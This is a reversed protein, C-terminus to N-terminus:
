KNMIYNKILVYDSSTVKGDGNYDAYKKADESLSKTGMIHNKILVYDSSTVKGDSNVDGKVFTVTSTNNTTTNTNNTTTNTNTNNNNTQSNDNTTTNTTNNTSTPRPSVKTPMNEYVPIVFTYAYETAGISELIKRVREGQNQAYLVDQAYQHSYFSDAVVDFKELYMTDQGVTIYGKAIFDVGGILCKEITDWGKGKAWALANSIIASTTTGSANINFINYYYKTKGDETTKMKVTSGGKKGQEQIIKAAIYYPNVSKEKCRTIVTNIYTDLKGDDLFSGKLINKIIKSDYTTSQDYSLELFQFVDEYYISNRPDMMYAIATSSACVWSNGSYGKTGCVPCIWNTYSKPVLNRGHKSEQTIVTNWDLGTYFVKFKWNPHNKQLNLIMSKIGPYKKDDINNIQNDKKQTVAFVRGPFLNFIMIIILSLVLISALFKHKEM